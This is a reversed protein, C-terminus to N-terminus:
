SATISLDYSGVSHGDGYGIVAGYLDWSTSQSWPGAFDVACPDNFFAETLPWYTGGIIPFMSYTGLSAAHGTITGYTSASGIAAGANIASGIIAQKGCYGYVTSMAVDPTGLLEASVNNAPTLDFTDTETGYVGSGYPASIFVWRCPCCGTAPLVFQGPSLLARIAAITPADLTTFPVQLGLSQLTVRSWTKTGGFDVQAHQTNPDNDWHNTYTEDVVITSVPVASEGFCESCM